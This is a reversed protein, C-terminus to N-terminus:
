PTWETNSISKDLHNHYRRELFAVEGSVAQWQTRVVQVGEGDDGFDGVMEGTGAGREPVESGPRGGREM